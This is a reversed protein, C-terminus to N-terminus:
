GLRWIMNTSCCTAFVMRRGLIDAHTWKQLLVHGMRKGQVKVMWRPTSHGRLNEAAEPSVKTTPEVTGMTAPM